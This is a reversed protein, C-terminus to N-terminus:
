SVSWAGAPKTRPKVAIRLEGATLARDLGRDLAQVGAADRPALTIEVRISLQKLVAGAHHRDALVQRFLMVTDHQIGFQLVRVANGRVPDIVCEALVAPLHQVQGHRSRGIDQTRPRGHAHAMLRWQAVATPVQHPVARM